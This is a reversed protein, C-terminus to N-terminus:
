AILELANILNAHDPCVLALERSKRIGYIITSHDRNMSNGIEPYSRGLADRMVHSVAWRVRTIQRHGKHLRIEDISLGTVAESRELFNYKRHIPPAYWNPWLQRKRPEDTYLESLM